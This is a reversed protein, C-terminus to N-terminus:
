RRAEYGSKDKPSDKISCARRVAECTYFLSTLEKGQLYIMDNVSFKQTKRKEKLWDQVEQSQLGLYFNTAAEDEVM